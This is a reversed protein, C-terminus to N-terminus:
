KTLAPQYDRLFDGHEREIEALLEPTLTERWRDHAPRMAPLRALISEDCRLGCFEFVRRMTESASAVLDEYNVSLFRGPHLAAQKELYEHVVRYQWAAGLHFPKSEQEKWGPFHVGFWRDPYDKRRKVVTSAVVARWDRIPQVFLADPFLATLFAIQVSHAPLKSAYRTAGRLALVRAIRREYWDRVEPKADREDALDQDRTPFFRFWLARSERPADRYVHLAGGVKTVWHALWPSNPFNGNARNFFGVDPHAVLCEYLLSTGCRPPAVIFIPRDVRPSM